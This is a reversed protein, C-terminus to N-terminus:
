EDEEDIDGIDDIGVIAYACQVERCGHTTLLWDTFQDDVKEAQSLRWWERYLRPMDEYTLNEPTEILGAFGCWPRHSDNTEILALLM